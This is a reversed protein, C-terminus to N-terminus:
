GSAKFKPLNKKRGSSDPTRNADSFHLALTVTHQIFNQRDCVACLHQMLVVCSSIDPQETPIFLAVARIQLPQLILRRRPTYEIVAVCCHYWMTYRNEPHTGLM